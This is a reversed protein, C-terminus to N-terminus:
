GSGGSGRRASSQCRCAGRRLVTSPDGASTCLNEVGVRCMPPLDKSRGEGGIGALKHAVEVPRVHGLAAELRAAPVGAFLPLAAARALTAEFPSAARTTAGGLLALGAISALLIAGGAAGLAPLAGVNVVLIPLVLAGVAASVTNLTMLVGFARGRL